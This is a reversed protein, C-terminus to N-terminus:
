GAKDKKGAKNSQMPFRLLFDSGDPGTNQLEISGNLVQSALNYSLHLGLGHCHSGRKSTVFPEFVRSQLEDPIGQGHDRVLLHCENGQLHFQVMVRKESTESFAHLCCNQLLQFVIQELAQARVLLQVRPCDLEIRVDPYSLQYPRLREDLWDPLQIQQLQCATQDVAVQKFHHVLDASRELNKILLKLHEFCHQLFQQMRQNTIKKQQFLQEMQETENLLVTSSTMGIGLPTNLEHAVGAVVQGLSAMKEKEILLKQATLLEQQQRAVQLRLQRAKRKETQMRWLYLAALVGTLALLCLLQFWLRQWIKPEIVVDLVLMKPNWVGLTNSSQVQLQYQGPWLNTYSLQRQNADVETWSQDFGQLQYRYRIADPQQFELAAFELSFGRHHPALTLQQGPLPAAQGDLQASTLTLGPFGATPQYNDADIVLLGEASGFLMLGSRSQSYSRFWPTGVVFGETEPLSFSQKSNPDYLHQQTWLRGHSDMLLNAGFAQHQKLGSTIKTLKPRDASLQDLVYLGQPTDLWLQEKDALLGLISLTASERNAFHVLKATDEGPRLRYLGGSGGGLWIQGFADETIANLYDAQPQEAMLPYSRLQALNSQWRYLGQQTGLWLQQQSDIYFRRVTENLADALTLREIALTQPEVRYIGEPYTALWVKGDQQQVMSTVFGQQLQRPGSGPQLRAIIGAGPRLVDVGSGRTGLWIDGNALELISSIDPSSIGQNDKLSFRLMSVQQSSQYRQLGGGFSGTWILQNSDQFLVRVDSHALSYRDSPDPEFRNLLQEPTRQWREIGGLRALWVENESPHLLDHVPSPTDAAGSAAFPRLEADHKQWWFVGANASGVWISGDPAAKLSLVSQGKVLEFVKPQASETNLDLRLLGQRHGIWLQNEADVLLARVNIGTLEPAQLIEAQGSAPIRALGNRSGVWLQQQQDEALTQASHWFAAQEIPFTEFREFAARAPLYRSLGGPVAAVWLDGNQRVLLSQIFNGSLSNAYEAQQSFRLFRYGDFRVLGNATGIWLFGTTDQEIATVIHEPIQQHNGTQFFLSPVPPFAHAWAARLLSCAICVFM